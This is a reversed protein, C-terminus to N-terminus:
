CGSGEGGANNRQFVSDPGFCAPTIECSTSVILMDHLIHLVTVIAQKGLNEIPPACAECNQTSPVTFLESLSCSNADNRSFKSTIQSRDMLGFKEDNRLDHNVAVLM